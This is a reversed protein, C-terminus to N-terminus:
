EKVLKQSISKGTADTIKVIYIGNAKGSLNITNDGSLLNGEGVLQGLMGYVAYQADSDITVNFMGNSPNPFVKVDNKVVDPLSVTGVEKYNLIQVNTNNPDLWNRLRTGNTGGGTWSQAFRGYVDFGGNGSTGNCDSDGGYLQGIIRGNNDFLPSGSSGGETVGLDWSNVEWMFTGGTNDIGPADFDRSVKMIDGAPHHIGFTSDPQSESRTWGAYVLNWSSPMNATIKILCFDTAERKAKLEAGSVTEYYNQSNPAGTNNTACIPNTRIWNFRFAWQSVDEGEACHNATLFYPTGDNTTNNILAGTCFSNGNVIILGVAKKNVEKLNNIEPMDCNVDYHCDGSNNLDWDPLKEYNGVSRYGHVVKFVELKGQGKVAKPEYYEIVVDDGTVMWTGLVRRESNQAEDYAGLLDSKDNAYLYVKAGKPMYFDSFLFNMTHAGASSYRIRWIRDGNDLENWVGSNELNHDVLFEYGYRWPKNKGVDNIKDEAQLKELDFTPMVEARIDKAKTIIAWSAPKGENTVQGYSLHMLLLFLMTIKLKM